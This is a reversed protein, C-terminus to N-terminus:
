IPPASGSSARRRSGVREGPCIRTRSRPSSGREAFLQRAAAMIAGRRLVKDEIKRARERFAM